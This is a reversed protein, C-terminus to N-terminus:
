CRRGQLDIRLANDTVSGMDNKETKCQSYVITKDGADRAIQLQEVLANMKASPEMDDDGRRWHAVTRQSPKAIPLKTTNQSSEPKVNRSEEDDDGDSTNPTGFLRPKEKPYCDLDAHV